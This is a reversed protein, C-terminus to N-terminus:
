PRRHSHHDSPQPPDPQAAHSLARRLHARARHLRSRVTAVPIGLAAAIEDQTLNAALLLLVDRHRQSMRALTAALTRVLAQADTRDIAREHPEAEADLQGSRDLHGLAAAARHARAEAGRHRHLVNTAIGYLWPIANPRSRDYRDRREYAILFTEAVVDEALHGGVRRACYRYLQPAYRDFLVGFQGRSGGILDTDRPVPPSHGSFAVDHVGMGM